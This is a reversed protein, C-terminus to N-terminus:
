CLGAAHRNGTGQSNKGAYGVVIPPEISNNRGVERITGTGQCGIQNGILLNKNIIL